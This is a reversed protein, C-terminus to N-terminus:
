KNLKERSFSDVLWDCYGIVFSFFKPKGSTKDLGPLLGTLQDIIVDLGGFSDIFEGNANKRKIPIVNAFPIFNIEGDMIARAQQMDSYHQAIDRIGPCNIRREKNDPLHVNFARFHPSVTPDKPTMTPLKIKSLQSQTINHVTLTLTDENVNTQVESFENRICFAMMFLNSILTSYVAKDGM